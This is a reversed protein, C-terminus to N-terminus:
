PNCPEIGEIIVLFDQLSNRCPGYENGSSFLEWDYTVFAGCSVGTYSAIQLECFYHACHALLCVPDGSFDSDLTVWKLTPWSGKGQKSVVNQYQVESVCYTDEAANSWMDDCPCIPSSGKSPQALAAASALLTGLILARKLFVM